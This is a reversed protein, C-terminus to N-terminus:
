RPYLTSITPLTRFCVSLLYYYTLLLYTIISCFYELGLQLSASVWDKEIRTQQRDGRQALFLQM